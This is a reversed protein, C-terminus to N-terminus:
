PGLQPPNGHLSVLSREWRNIRFRTHSKCPLLRGGTRRPSVSVVEPSAQVSATGRQMLNKPEGSGAREAFDGLNKIELKSRSFNTWIKNRLCRGSM